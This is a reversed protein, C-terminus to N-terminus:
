GPQHWTPRFRRGTIAEVEIRVFIPKSGQQWAALSM